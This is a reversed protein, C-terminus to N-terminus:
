LRRWRRHAPRALARGGRGVRRRGPRVPPRGSVSVDHRGPRDHRRARWGRDVHQLDDPARGHRAHPDHQRHVRVCLGTGGGIGIRAILALIVDKSTVGKQLPGEIRVEFTKPRRQLLCQTALVHEVESTGIGFALAGFAGHTSTHSDGCVITKGPQTLGLEPGIVHVIGQGPDGIGFLRIGSDKCSAELETVMEAARPDRIPSRQDITPIIHDMTAFTRDPRRVRLGRARLGRFAQPSTVEHILHLDIYLVTPCGSEEAVVHADWVKEFLTRPQMRTLYCLFIVASGCLVRRREPFKGPIRAVCGGCPSGPFKWLQMGANMHSRAEARDGLQGRRGIGCFDRM